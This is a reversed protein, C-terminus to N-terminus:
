FGKLIPGNSATLPRKFDILMILGQKGNRKLTDIIDYVIRTNEGIFRDQLFGKQEPSIVDMLIKRLRQSLVGTLIKYDVNLLTIPRWNKLFQRPKNGKPICTIIGQKPSISLTGKQYTYNFSNLLFHGLDNWFVKYFEIPFGDTGPTKDNKMHKIVKKVEEDTIEGECSARQVHSIRNINEPKLFLNLNNEKSQDVKSSYLDEYFEKQAQLIDEQVTLTEGEVEIKTIVKKVYNRKELNMFYKTPKEGEEYFQAKARLMMAKIKPIRLKELKQQADQLEEELRDNLAADSDM